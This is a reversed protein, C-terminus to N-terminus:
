AVSVDDILIDGTSAGDIVDIVVRCFGTNTPTVPTASYQYTWDDGSGDNLPISANNITEQDLLKTYDDDSDYISVKVSGNFGSTTKTIYLKLTFQTAATVPVYFEWTEPYTQSTPNIAVCIGSGAKAYAATQGNTIQDLIYGWYNQSFHRGSVHGLNAVRVSGLSTDSSWGNGNTFTVKTSSDLNVNRGVYTSFNSGWWNAGFRLDCSTNARVSVGDNGYYSNRDDVIHYNSSAYFRLGIANLFSKVASLSYKGENLRLGADANGYAYVEDAGFLARIPPTLEIGADSCCLGMLNTVVQSYAVANFRMYLGIGNNQNIAYLYDLDATEMINMWYCGTGYNNYFVVKQITTTITRGDGNDFYSGGGTPNDRIVVGTWSGIGYACNWEANLSYSGRLAIFSCWDLDLYNGTVRIHCDYTSQTTSHRVNRTINFVHCVGTHAYAFKPTSQSGDGASDIYIITGSIGTIVVKETQTRTTTSSAVVIEDGVAWGTSDTTHLHNDNVAIDSALTTVIYTKSAGQMIIQPNSERGIMFGGSATPNHVFDATYNSPIPTAVTGISWIGGEVCHWPASTALKTTMSPDWNLTGANGVVIAGYETASNINVTVTAGTPNATAGTCYGLVFVNDGASLTGTTSLVTVAGINSTAASNVVFYNSSASNSSVMIRYNGTGNTETHSSSYKFYIPSYSKTASTIVLTTSARDTWTSGVYEQLTVTITGTSAHNHLWLVVGTDTNSSNGDWVSSYRPVSSTVALSTRSWYYAGLGNHFVDVKGTTQWNGDWDINGDNVFTAM